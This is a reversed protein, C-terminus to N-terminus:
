AGVMTTVRWTKEKGEDKRRGGKEEKMKTAVLITTLFIVVMAGLIVM